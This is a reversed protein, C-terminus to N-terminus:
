LVTVAGTYVSDSFNKGDASVFAVWTHVTRGSFHSLTLSDAAASRAAGDLTYAAQNIDPAYVMLIAKDDEKATGVGTNDTWNFNVIGAAGAKATPAEANLHNGRSLLLQPYALSYNPYTGAIGNRINYSLAANPATVGKALDKFTLNLLDTFKGIFKIMLGFRMQQTLQADSYKGSKRNGQSRMISIGKWSTGVVTGLKGNFGGLIGKNFTAM